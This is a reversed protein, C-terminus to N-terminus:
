HEYLEKVDDLTIFDNGSKNLHCFVDHIQIGSYRQTIGTITRRLDEETIEQKNEATVKSIFGRLSDFRHRFHLRMDEVLDEIKVLYRM